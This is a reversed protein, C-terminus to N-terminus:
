SIVVLPDIFIRGDADYKSVFCRIRVKSAVAPQIGTVEIYQSWDSESSRLSCAEDSVEKTMTYATVDNYSDVYEVELWLESASLTIAKCQVYYRYAKLETTAEFEHTFIEYANEPIGINYTSSGSCDVEIVSDAGGTRKYPDGSGAVVDNKQMSIFPVGGYHAGLVKGYNEINIRNLSGGRPSYGLFTGNTGGFKVDRGKVGGGRLYLDYDGNAIEVGINVNTLRGNFNSLGLDGMGYIAVDRFEQYAGLGFFGVQSSGAGSGEIITRKAFVNQTVGITLASTNQDQHFLCGLFYTWLSAVCYVIGNTDTSDRFELNKFYHYNGGSVLLQYAQDKFDICPLDDADTNYNAKKITWTLDDIEQALIYDEDAEIQFKGNTTSVSSGAYERDIILTNADIIRTILYRFGNPATAYRGCHKERDLTVGVVLDVTTSGNTWTAETITTNPIVARPWGMISIPNNRTGDYACAIDSTPNGSYEVHIRRVWVNDGAVLGGAELAHELTAWALDMSLGTDTDNGTTSDVFYDAM